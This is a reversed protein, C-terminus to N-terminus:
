YGHVVKTIQIRDENPMLAVYITCEANECAKYMFKDRPEPIFGHAAIMSRAWNNAILFEDRLVLTIIPIIGDHQELILKVHIFVIDSGHVHRHKDAQINFHIDIPNTSGDWDQNLISKIINQVHSVPCPLSLLVASIIDDGNDDPVLLCEFIHKYGASIDDELLNWPTKKLRM